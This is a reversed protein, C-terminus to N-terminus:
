CVCIVGNVCRGRFLGNCPRRYVSVGIVGACVCVCWRVCGVNLWAYPM